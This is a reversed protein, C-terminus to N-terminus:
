FIIPNRLIHHKSTKIAIKIAITVKKSRPHCVNVHEKPNLIFRRANPRAFLSSNWPPLFCGPLYTKDEPIKLIDWTGTLNLLTVDEGLADQQAELINPILIKKCHICYLHIYEKIAAPGSNSISLSMKKHRNPLFKQSSISLLQLTEVERSVFTEANGVENGLTM